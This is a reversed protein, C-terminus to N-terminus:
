MTPFKKREFNTTLTGNKDTISTIQWQYKESNGDDDDGDGMPMMMTMVNVGIVMANTHRWVTSALGDDAVGLDELTVYLAVRCFLFKYIEIFDM